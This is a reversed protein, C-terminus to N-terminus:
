FKPTVWNGTNLMISWIYHANYGDSVNQYKLEQVQTVRCGLM